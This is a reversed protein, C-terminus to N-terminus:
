EKPMKGHDMYLMNWRHGDPDAFAVNYMWGDIESPESTITGGADFVKRAMEDVEEHSAAGFSIIMESSQKTNTVANKTFTKFIEEAFFLVAMKKEGITFCAMTENSQKENLAFGIKSFFEKTKNIDKVPLNVWYEKTM